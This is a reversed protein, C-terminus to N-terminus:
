GCGSATSSQDPGLCEDLRRHIERELRSRLTALLFGLRVSIRILGPELDIQGSVGSREFYLSDEQWHHSIEYREALEEVLAEAAARAQGDALGHPRHIMIHSM